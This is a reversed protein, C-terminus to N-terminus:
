GINPRPGVVPKADRPAVFVFSEAAPIFNPFVEATWDVLRTTGNLNSVEGFYIKSLTRGTTGALKLEFVISKKGNWFMAYETEDDGAYWRSTIIPDQAAPDNKTVLREQGGPIWQRYGRVVYVERILRALYTASGKMAATFDDALNALYRAPTAPGHTGYSTVWYDNRQPSYNYFAKGDGVARQVLIGDQFATFETKATPVGNADFALYWYLEDALTMRARGFQEQGSLRIRVSREANLGAFAQRVADTAAGPVQATAAAALVM